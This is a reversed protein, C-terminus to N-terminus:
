PINTTAPGHERVSRTLAALGVDLAEREQTSLGDLMKDACAQVQPLVTNFLQQGEDTCAYIRLRRDKRSITRTILGKNSLKRSARSIQVKDLSTRQSLELSTLQGAEALLLLLRWEERSLGYAKGYVAVLNRSFAEAVIALRYPFFSELLM